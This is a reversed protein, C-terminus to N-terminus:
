HVWGPVIRVVDRNNTYTKEVKSTVTAAPGPPLRRRSPTDLSRHGRKIGAHLPHPLQWSAGGM